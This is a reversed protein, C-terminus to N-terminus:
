GATSSWAKGQCIGCALISTETSRPGRLVSAQCDDAKKEHRGQNGKGFGSVDRTVVGDEWRLV